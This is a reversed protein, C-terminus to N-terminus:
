RARCGCSDGADGRPRARNRRVIAPCPAAPPGRPRGPAARRFRRLTRARRRGGPRSSRQGQRVPQAPPHNELLWGGATDPGSTPGMEESVFITGWATRRVPDCSVTGTLITEVVGDALRVRQVGPQTAGEENCVILHTPSTDNLWLAMQDINPRHGSGAGLFRRHVVQRCCPCRYDLIVVPSVRGHEMTGDDTEAPTGCRRCRPRRWALHFALVSAALWFLLLGFVQADEAVLMSGCM